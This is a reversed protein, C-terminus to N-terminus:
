VLQKMGILKIAPAHWSYEKENKGTTLTLVKDSTFMTTITVSFFINKDVSVDFISNLLQTLSMFFVDLYIIRFITFIVHPPKSSGFSCREYSFKSSTYSVSISRDPDWTHYTCLNHMNVTTAQVLPFRTIWTCCPNEKLFIPHHLM